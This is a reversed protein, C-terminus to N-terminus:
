AAYSETENVLTIEIIRGTVVDYLFKPKIQLTVIGNKDGYEIAEYAMLPSEITLKHHVAAAIVPGTLVVKFDLPKQAKLAAYEDSASDVRVVFAGTIAREGFLCESRIAGSTTDGPNQFDTSGPRYGDDALLQNEINIEWSELRKATGYQTGNALTGADAITLAVQSNFFYKMDTAPTVQNGAGAAFVIGSPTTRKGSGRFSFTSTIRDIGEGKLSLNEVVCSPYLANVANGVQEVLTTAPLQRSINPDQPIFVHQYAGPANVADPQTTAVSGLALMLIRGLSDSAPEFEVSRNVDHSLIWQETPFDNRTSYGKNDRTQVQYGALNKDKVLLEVMNLPVGTNPATPTAYDDQPIRSIAFQRQQIHAISM